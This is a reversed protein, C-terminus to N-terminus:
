DMMNLTKGSFSEGVPKIASKYQIGTKPCTRVPSALSYIILDIKPQIMAEQAAQFVAKSTEAKMEGLFANGDLTKSVLGARAAERDFAENNYFGPTATHNGFAAKEKSLGV